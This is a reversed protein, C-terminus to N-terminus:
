KECWWPVTETHILRLHLRYHPSKFIRGVRLSHIVNKKRNKKQLKIELFVGGTRAALPYTFCVSWVCAAKSSRLVRGAKENAPQASVRESLLSCTTQPHCRSADCVLLPAALTLLASLASRVM